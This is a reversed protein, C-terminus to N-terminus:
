HATGAIFLGGTFRPDYAFFDDLQQGTLGDVIRVDPGGGPGPVCIVQARDGSTPTVGAVRVGGTFVMDYPFFSALPAGDVGNFAAVNPGGGAGAGVIVDAKGDGNVDGASVYIGASFAQAYAFYSQLETPNDLFIALDSTRFVTVNPGGGPGAGTIIEARGDGNTDGAAVRVGGTFNMDYPFFSLLRSGDKGSFVTVNPGGGADAGCIIDADGDGNVDGAAIYVGGTFHPDYAFFNLLQSGDKGSYVIINPGGGPGAATILDPFSDGNVDGVAVRVGGTFSPDFAFFSGLAQHTAADFVKVDPGGGADAGTVFIKQNAALPPPLGDLYRALAVSSGSAGAVVIGNGQLAASLGTSSDGITTTVQGGSGFAPDLSGDANFRALAFQSTSGNSDNGAAVIKGDPQVVVGHAASASTESTTGFTQTVFGNTGFAPDRSGDANFRGVIWYSANFRQGSFDNIFNNAGGAVVFKGDAQLALANFRNEEGPGLPFAKGGNGFSPDLHGATTFRM